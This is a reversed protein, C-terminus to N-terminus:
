LEVLGRRAALLIAGVHVGHTIRGSEILGVLERRPVHVVDIDESEDLARTGTPLAGRACFFHARVTQRSPETAFSGIHDWREAVYGTEECLERRAAVVPEEGPELVGAPLELSECGIGHRYQRVLVVEDDGTVCLVGAWNPGEVVHFEGIERGNALRVRDEHLTFWRRAVLTRRELVQWPVLPRYTVAGASLM